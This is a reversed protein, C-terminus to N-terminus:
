QQTKRSYLKAYSCAPSIGAARILLLMDAPVIFYACFYPATFKPNSSSFILLSTFSIFNNWLIAIPM